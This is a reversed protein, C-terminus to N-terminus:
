SGISQYFNLCSTDHINRGTSFHVLLVAQERVPQLELALELTKPSRKSFVMVGTPLVRKQGQLGTVGAESQNKLMRLILLIMSKAGTM